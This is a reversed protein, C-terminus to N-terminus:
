ASARRVPRDGRRQAHRQRGHGHGHGGVKVGSDHPRGVNAPQVISTALWLVRQEIDRLLRRGPTGPLPRPAPEHDAHQVIMPEAGLAGM